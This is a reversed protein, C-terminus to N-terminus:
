RWKEAWKSTQLQSQIHWDRLVGLLKDRIDKHEHSKWLNEFEDPDDQLNFLQGLQEDLFHVLKWERSRVMTQFNGETYNLDRVQEAFVYERGNFAKGELAPLLSEAELNDPSKAGALELIAPGVDMLQVLADTRGGAPFRGPCRAIMPVRTVQDYMTWKQSHGHDTLCDGHDSTFIIVTNDLKGKHELADMIEGVKDDIMTVNALYHIRQDRREKETLNLKFVVSDHDVETNHVRMGKYSEPQNNLDEGRIEQLPIVKDKYRELHGPLPDYPPHPGPFGVELFFPKDGDHNHIWEVARDGVYYDSHTEPPLDWTFAGLRQKYDPRKRYEVRKQKQHGERQLFKDWEDMYEGGELFRDKNEVVHREHFGCPTEFPWTHMKGINACHYGADALNNVWSQTWTDANKLIGTTHPYYGTFLSARSPACSPAT